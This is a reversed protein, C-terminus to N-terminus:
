PLKLVPSCELTDSAQGYIDLKVIRHPGEASREAAPSSSRLAPPIPSVFFRLVDVCAYREGGVFTCVLLWRRGCQM